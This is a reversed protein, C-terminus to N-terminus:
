QAFNTKLTEVVEEGEGRLIQRWMYLGFGKAQEVTVNPPMAM